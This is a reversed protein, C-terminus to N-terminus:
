LTGFSNRLELSGKATLGLVPYSFNPNLGLSAIKENPVALIVQGNALAKKVINSM